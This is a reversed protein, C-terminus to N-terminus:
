MVGPHPELGLTERIRIFNLPFRQSQLELEVIGPHQHLHGAFLNIPPEGLFMAVDLHNPQQYVRHPSDTQLIRGQQIVAVRDGMSLAEVQDHTVYIMSLGFQKPLNRLMFRLEHRLPADLHALPEDLLLLKPRRVLARALAVRQQEGGSLQSPYRSLFSDIRLETALQLVRQDAEHTGFQNQKFGFRLNEDVTLHPYLRLDQFVMGLQRLHPEVGRLNQGALVIEGEDPTDLGALLRLLTSKGAGSKGVIVLLEQPRVQLNLQNLVRQSKPFSKSLNRIELLDTPM